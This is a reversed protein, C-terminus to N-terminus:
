SLLSFSFLCFPLAPHLLCGLGAQSRPSTAFFRLFRAGGATEAARGRGSAQSQLKSVFM